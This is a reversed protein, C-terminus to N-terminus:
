SLQVWDQGDAFREFRAHLEAVVAGDIPLCQEVMKINSRMHDPNQTGVIFTDVPDHAFAFGLALLIRDDPAGDLEGLSLMKQARDFYRAAYSSPASSAAWAGNAIPRKVILGMGQARVADFLYRRANQDVLNFSTQLTDFRGSKVAWLAGENDGSYGIFRTKGARQADQLAEILEGRELIEVSCTHLQVLDLHDTKMRSLSREISDRITAATWSEGEYDGAVHGAKTALVFEDRRHAITRGILSESNDYCAATDFFTIGNDLALNLVEGARKAEDLDLGGIESLGVGLRSIELGTKGLIRTEM